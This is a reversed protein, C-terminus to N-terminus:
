TDIRVMEGLALNRYVLDNRHTFGLKEWFYNGASNNTFVVLNVKHIGEQYLAELAKKVLQTGIGQGRHTELVATHYISGRRGDHGTLIAGVIQNENLAVFCTNPNHILYRAIGEKSDDLNNLGMGACTLWLAYVEDYDTLAMLRYRYNKKEKM